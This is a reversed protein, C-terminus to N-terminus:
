ECVKDICNDSLCDNDEVCFDGDQAKSFQEAKNLISESQEGIQESAEEATGMLQYAVVAVVALVVVILILM